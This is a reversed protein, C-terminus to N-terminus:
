ENERVSRNWDFKSGDYYFSYRYHQNSNPILYDWDPPFSYSNSPLILDYNGYVDIVGYCVSNVNTINLVTDATLIIRALNGSSFDWEGNTLNLVSNILDVGLDTIWGWYPNELKTGDTENIGFYRYLSKELNDSSCVICLDGHRVNTITEMEEISRKYFTKSTNEDLYKKNIISFKDNIEGYYKM